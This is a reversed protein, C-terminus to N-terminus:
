KKREIRILKLQERDTTLEDKGAPFANGRFFYAIVDVYQEPQLSGPNDMPMKTQMTSFLDLVTSADWAGLFSDGSFDEPGHCTSCSTKFVAQGRAAQGETYVGDWVSRQSQSQAAGFSLAVFVVIFAIVRKM